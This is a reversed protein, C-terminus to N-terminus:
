KQRSRTEGATPSASTTPPLRPTQYGARRTAEPTSFVAALPSMRRAYTVDGAQAKALATMWGRSLNCAELVHIPSPADRRRLHARRALRCCPVRFRSPRRSPYCSQSEHLLAMDQAFTDHLEGELPRRCFKDALVMSMVCHQSEGTARKRRYPTWGIPKAARIIAITSEFM